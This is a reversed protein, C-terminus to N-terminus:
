FAHNNLLEIDLEIAVYGCYSDWSEFECLGQLLIERVIVNDLSLSIFLLCTNAM